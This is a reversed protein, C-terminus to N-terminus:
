RIFIAWIQIPNMKMKMWHFDRIFLKPFPFRLPAQGDGECNLACL